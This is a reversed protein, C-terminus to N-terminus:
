RRCIEVESRRSLTIGGSQDSEEKKKKTDKVGVM